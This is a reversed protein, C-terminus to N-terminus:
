RSCIANVFAIYCAVDGITKRYIHDEEENGLLNRWSTSKGIRALYRALMNIQIIVDNHLANRLPDKDMKQERSMLSWGARIEAYKVSASVLDGYIELVDQDNQISQLIDNHIGEMQDITLVKEGSLYEEYSYMNM